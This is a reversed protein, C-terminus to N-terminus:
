RCRGCTPRKPCRSRPCRSPWRMGPPGTRPRDERPRRRTGPVHVGPFGHALGEAQDAFDAPSQGSVLRVAVRDTCPAATVRGLVPLMVQGRYVPALGTITMVARWHRRYFWWRWRCRLPVTVLRAFWDPRWVRLTLLAAITVNALVVVGPWGAKAWTLIVLGAAVDMDKAQVFRDGSSADFDRMPEFAGAAFAGHPFVHAFEVPIPGQLAM